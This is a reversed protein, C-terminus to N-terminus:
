EQTENLLAMKKVVGNYEKRIAEMERQLAEWTEYATGWSPNKSLLDQFLAEKEPGDFTNARLEFNPMENALEDIIHQLGNVEDYKAKYEDSLKDLMNQLLQQSDEPESQDITDQYEQESQTTAGQSEELIQSAASQPQQESQTTAGQHQQESQTDTSQSGELDQTTTSQSGELDQATTSQSGELDQSPTGLGPYASVTIALFSIVAFSILKM